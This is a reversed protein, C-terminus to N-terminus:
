KTEAFIIICTILNTTLTKKEYTLIEKWKEKRKKM